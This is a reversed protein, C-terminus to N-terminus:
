GACSALTTLRIEDRTQVPDEQRHRSEPTSRTRAQERHYSRATPADFPRPSLLYPTPLTGGGERLRRSVHRARAGPPGRNKCTFLLPSREKEALYINMFGPSRASRRKERLM